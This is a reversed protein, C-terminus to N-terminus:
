FLRNEDEPAARTPRTAAAPRGAPAPLVAPAPPEGPADADDVGTLDSLDTMDLGAVAALGELYGRAREARPYHAVLAWFAPGHGAERLHALEHVLVYDIVWGPLQQLRHSLRITGDAPTCSGWRSGQNRVWRVSSPRALGELHDRSLRRARQMLAEDGGRPPRRAQRETLRGLMEQVWRQEDAVSLRAPLLVIVTEGDRYASM